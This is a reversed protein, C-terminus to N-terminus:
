RKPVGTLRRQMAIRLSMSVKMKISAPLGRGTCKRCDSRFDMLGAVQTGWEHRLMVAVHTPDAGCEGIYVTAIIRRSIQIATIQM